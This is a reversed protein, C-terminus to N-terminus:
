SNPTWQVKHTYENMKKKQQQARNPPHNFYENDSRFNTCVLDLDLYSNEKGYYSIGSTANGLTWRVAGHFFIGMKRRMNTKTLLYFYFFDHVGRKLADGRIKSISNSKGLNDM